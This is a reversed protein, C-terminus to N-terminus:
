IRSGVISSCAGGVLVVWFYMFRCFYVSTARTATADDFPELEIVWKGSFACAIRIRGLRGRRRSLNTRAYEKKTNIPGDGCLLLMDLAIHYSRSRNFQWYVHGSSISKKRLRGVFIRRVWNSTAACCLIM